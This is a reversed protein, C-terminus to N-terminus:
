FLWFTRYVALGLVIVALVLVFALQRPTLHPMEVADDRPM